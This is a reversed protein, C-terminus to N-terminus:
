RRAGRRLRPGDIRDTAACLGAAELDVVPCRELEDAFSYGLLRLEESYLAEILRRTVRHYYHTYPRKDPTVNRRPIRPPPPAGRESLLAALAEGLAEHRVALDVGTLMPFMHGLFPWPGDRKRDRYRWRLVASVVWPNFGACRLLLSRRRLRRRKEAVRRSERLWAEADREGAERWRDLRRELHALYAETWSGRLREYYTVLRDFPNRVNAVVVWRRLDRPAIARSALLQPVDDHKRGVAVGGYYKRLVGGVVSCGTAPVQVYLIRLDECLLAM